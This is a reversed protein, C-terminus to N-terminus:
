ELLSGSPCSQLSTRVVPLGGSCRSVVVFPGGCPCLATNIVRQQLVGMGRPANRPAVSSRILRWCLPTFGSARVLVERGSASITDDEPRLLFTPCGFKAQM